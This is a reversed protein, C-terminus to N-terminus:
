IQQISFFITLPRGLVTCAPTYTAIINNGNEQTSVATLGWGRMCLAYQRDISIQIFKKADTESNYNEISCQQLRKQPIRIKVKYM